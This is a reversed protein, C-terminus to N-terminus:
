FPLRNKIAEGPVDRRDLAVSPAAFGSVMKPLAQTPCFSKM